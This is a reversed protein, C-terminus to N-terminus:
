RACLSQQTTYASEEDTLLALPDTMTHQEALAHLATKGSACDRMNINCGAQLLLKMAEINNIVAALTLAQFQFKRPQLHQNTVPHYADYSLSDSCYVFM